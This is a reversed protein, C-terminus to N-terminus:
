ASVEVAAVAAAGTVLSALEGHGLHAFLVALQGAEGALLWVDAGEAGRDGISRLVVHPEGMRRPAAPGEICALRVDVGEASGVNKIHVEHADQRGCWAPCRGPSGTLGQLAPGTVSQGKAM